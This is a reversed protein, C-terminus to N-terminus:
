NLKWVIRTKWPTDVPRGGATAPKYTWRTVCQVAALDLRDHGSSQAVEVDKVTGLTTIRFSVVTAGEEGLRMSQAPYGDVCSHPLGIAAPATGAGPQTEIKAFHMVGLCYGFLVFLGALTLAYFANGLRVLFRRWKEGPIASMRTLAPAVARRHLAPVFFPITGLAVIEALPAATLLAESDALRHTLALEFVLWWAMEVILPGFILLGLYRCRKWFGELRMVYVLQVAIFATIYTWTMLQGGPMSATKIDRSFGILVALNRVTTQAPLFAALGIALVIMLALVGRGFSRPRAAALEGGRARKLRAAIAVFLRRV